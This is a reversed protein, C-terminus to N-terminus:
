EKLIGRIDIIDGQKVKKSSFWGSDMEIAYLYPEFPMHVTVTDYPVMEDLGVIRGERNIFAISLPIRTNKMWFSYVGEREFVFLMGSNPALSDRFM